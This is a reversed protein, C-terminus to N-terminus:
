GQRTSSAAETSRGMLFWGDQLHGPNPAQSQWPRDQATTGEKPRQQPFSSSFSLRGVGGGPKGPPESPLSGAQWHLPGPNSRQTPLIKQLLFPCAAGTNKGPSEWPCRLRAPATWPTVFLCVRRPSYAATAAGAQASM